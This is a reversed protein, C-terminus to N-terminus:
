SQGQSWLSAWAAACQGFCVCRGVALPREKFIAGTKLSAARGQLHATIQAPATPPVLVTRAAESLPTPVTVLTMWCVRPVSPLAESSAMTAATTLKRSDAVAAVGM